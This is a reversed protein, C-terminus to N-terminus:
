AFIAQFIMTYFVIVAIVVAIGALVGVAVPHNRATEDNFGLLRLIPKIILHWIM